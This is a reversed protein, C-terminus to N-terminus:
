VSRFEDVFLMVHEQLTNNYVMAGVWLTDPLAVALNALAGATSRAPTLNSSRDITQVLTWDTVTALDGTSLRMYLDFMQLAGERRVIRLDADYVTASPAAVAGFASVDDSAGGDHDTTKWEVQFATANAVGLAIHVYNHVNGSGVGAPDHAAIGALRYGGAFPNGSGTQDRVRVRARVDFAGTIPQYLLAGDDADQWHSGGAGGGSVRLNLEDGVIDATATGPTPQYLLWKPNLPAADFTDDFPVVGRRSFVASRLAPNRILRSDM